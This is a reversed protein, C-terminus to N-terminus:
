SWRRKELTQITLYVFIVTVSLLYFVGSLDFVGNIFVYFREFLSIKEMLRPMLSVFLDNNMMYVGALIAEIVLGGTIATFISGTMYKILVAFLVIFISLGVFSGIASVGAYSALVSIFYNILMVVFCLGAAVAQSECISSIFMGISLLAMGLLFFAFISTYAELLHVEGFGCLILPYICMIALPALFVVLLAFFKGLVIDKISIPLSYLLQDTKQKKEEAFIRMTIIPVIILFVFSISYIVYEYRTVLNRVNYIMVYIGAFLLLFLGFVYGSLSTYYSSIEHKFVAKM